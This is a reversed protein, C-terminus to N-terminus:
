ALFNAWNYAQRTLSFVATTMAQSAIITALECSTGISVAGGISSNPFVASRGGPSGATACRARFLQARPQAAGRLWALRIPQPGFHGMDAYLAEGGTVVLFITGLVLYGVLGNHTLFHAGYSPNVAALVRPESVIMSLGLLGSTFFWLLMIHGFFKGIDATGRKQVLFLGILIV